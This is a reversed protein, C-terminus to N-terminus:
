ASAATIMVIYGAPGDDSVVLRGCRDFQVDVPRLGLTPDQGISGMSLSM